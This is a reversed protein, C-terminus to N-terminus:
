KSQSLYLRTVDQTVEIGLCYHVLDKVLFHLALSSIFDSILKSNLGTVILDNVHVLIYLCDFSINLVFLSSDSRSAVFGLSLLKNSLKSFWARPAQKSGYLSKKLKCVHSPFDLNVFSPRQQMFMAEDLDGHLFSNQVDFQHLPWNSKVAISLILRITVLKIVPSFTKTYDVDPQQHFGKAM